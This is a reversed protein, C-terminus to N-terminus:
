HRLVSRFDRELTERSMMITSGWSIAEPPSAEWAAAPPYLLYTDWLVDGEMDKSHPARRGMMRPVLRHYLRGISKTDDWFHLTRSDALLSQHWRERSDGPYMKFWVAYVRVPASPSPDLLNQQV